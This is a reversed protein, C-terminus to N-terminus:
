DATHTCEPEELKMPELHPLLFQLVALSVPYACSAIVFPILYSGTKDLVFGVLQAICMGGVAAAMGGIGAVSSVAHKPVTDTAVTFLNASYGLHATTAMGLLFVSPWLGIHFAVLFVPAVCLACGLMVTKRAANISWGRGILVMSVWGGVVSGLDAMVYIVMVPVAM